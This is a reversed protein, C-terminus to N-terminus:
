KAPPATQLAIMAALDDDGAPLAGNASGGKAGITGWVKGFERRSRQANSEVAAALDEVVAALSTPHKAKLDAEISAFRSSTESASRAMTAQLEILRARLGFISLGLVAVSPVVLALVFGTILYPLM